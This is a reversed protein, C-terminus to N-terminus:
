ISDYNAYVDKRRSMFLPLEKRMKEAVDLDALRIFVM